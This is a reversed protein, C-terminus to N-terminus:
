HFHLLIVNNHKWAFNQISWLEISRFLNYNIPSVISVFFIRLLRQLPCHAIFEIVFFCM